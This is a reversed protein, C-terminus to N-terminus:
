VSHTCHMCADLVNGPLLLADMVPKFKRLYNKEMLREYNDSCGFQLWQDYARHMNSDSLVEDAESVCLTVFKLSALVKEQAPM